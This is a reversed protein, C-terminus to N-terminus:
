AWGRGEEEWGGVEAEEGSARGEVAAKERATRESRLRATAREVFVLHEVAVQGVLFLFRKLPGVAIRGGEGGEEEGKAAVGRGFLGRGANRLISACLKEPTPHLAYLAKVAQEAASYWGSEPLPSDTLIEQLSQFVRHQKGMAARVEEPLRQLAVCAYRALLPDERAKSGLGLDLIPRLYPTLITPQAQAAMTLIYLAGRSHAPTVKAARYTFM